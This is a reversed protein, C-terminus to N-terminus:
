THWLSQVQFGSILKLAERIKKSCYVCSMEIQFNFCLLICNALGVFIFYLLLIYICTTALPVIFADKSINESNLKISINVVSQVPFYFSHYRMVILQMHCPLVHSM